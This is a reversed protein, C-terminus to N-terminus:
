VTVALLAAILEDVGNPKEIIQINPLSKVDEKEINGLLEEPLGSIDCGDVAMVITRHTGALLESYDSDGAPGVILSMNAVDLGWRVFLYRLAQARSAHAPLLQLATGSRCYIAHCRLGRMRLRKRLELAPPVQSADVVKYALRRAGSRQFDEVIGTQQSSGSDGLNRAAAIVRAMSKRLGDGGWRYEIHGEYDTDPVLSGSNVYFLESGSGVIVLDFCSLSINVSHLLKTVENASLATSLALGIHKGFKESSVADAIPKLVNAFAPGGEGSSTYSDIAVVILGKRHRLFSGASGGNSLLYDDAESDEKMPQLGTSKQGVARRSLAPQQSEREALLRELDAGSTLSGGGLGKGDVSLALSLDRMDRLSDGQSETDANDIISDTRWIPHRLRCMAVKSLYTKCHEPWSYCHINRLGNKHYTDWTGRDGILKLLAEAIGDQDHPDVLVGNDLAKQIDVPGGNKTAVMPLGHAAAEILTLGFPEVLAPNVFVGKSKAALRYIEPVESQKHHKPYAVQGYMDYRDILKLVTTLIEANGTSMADIDDRNGMILVLNALDRLLKNEGYAKVLTVLNKKPDPRALALIIPKRPNSLFRMVEAWIPPDAKPTSPPEGLDSGDSLDSSEAVVNSFDMGPPIVVMRPMFRGHCSLGRRTRLRLKRELSVDFGDYLGWQQDIEQRTSTVVLESSDLSFEEAEIRHMIKYTANIDEPSQRGQKLLQELKNRGLSHGTLVMPVNLAGSLLSAIDGADAYHGHIMHPWVPEGSGIQEGLVNSMHVIHALAGDAFEPVHPWLLEKRCYKDRPGCPIRVIYAGSSEGGGEIEYAGTSLMEIPEGYSWDVEKALIQRTLLDVRYVQPMTALARAFEVVYKIQGGTDSDRGLEMNDGRVLGHLSILVVYLRKEHGEAGNNSQSQSREAQDATEASAPSYVPAEGKDSDEMIEEPMDESAELRGEERELERQALRKAETWEMEHKKRTIHWIRWCFNELRTGRDHVNKLATAKMWTRHLDTENSETIENVFYRTTTVASDGKRTEPKGADLVTGTDLIADLYGGLWDNAAM